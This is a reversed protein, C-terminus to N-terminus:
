SLSRYSHPLPRSFAAVELILLRLSRGLLSTSSRTLSFDPRVGAASLDRAFSFPRYAVVAAVVATGTAM